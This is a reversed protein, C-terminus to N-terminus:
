IPSDIAGVNTKQFNNEYKKLRDEIEDFLNDIDDSLKTISAQMEQDNSGVCRGFREVEVQLRLATIWYDRGHGTAIWLPLQIRIHMLAASLDNLVDNAINPSDRVCGFPLCLLLDNLLEMVHKVADDIMTKNM